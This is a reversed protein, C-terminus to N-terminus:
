GHLAGRPHAPLCCCMPFPGWCCHQMRRRRAMAGEFDMRATLEILADDAWEVADGYQKGGHERALREAVDGVALEARTVPPLPPRLFAVSDLKCAPHRSM